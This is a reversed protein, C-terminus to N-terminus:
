KSLLLISTLHFFLILLIHRRAFLATLNPVFSHDALHVALLTLIDLLDLLALLPFLAFPALFVQM